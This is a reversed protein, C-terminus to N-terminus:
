NKQNKATPVLEYGLSAADRRLKKEWRQQRELDNKAWLTEDYECQNKIMTYFIIAIKHATATVGGQKGLRGKMKKMYNGLPSSNHHLSSAAMRFIAGARGNTKRVGSWQVKHGTIDNDPCLGAWAAFAHADRWRHMDRGVETFLSLASTQLGPIQTTDVGFVRFAEKRLDFGSIAWRHKQRSKGNRKRDAPLPKQTLEVAAPIEGLLRVIERDVEEIKKQYEDYCQRSQRLTFLHEESWRGILSRRV